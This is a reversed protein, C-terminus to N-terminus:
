RPQFGDCVRGHGCSGAMSNSTSNSNSNQKQSVPDGRRPLWSPRIGSPRRARHADNKAPVHIHRRFIGVTVAFRSRTARFARQPTHKRKTVKRQVLLSFDGAHASAKAKFSWPLALVLALVFALAKAQRRTVKRQEHLSFDGFSFM